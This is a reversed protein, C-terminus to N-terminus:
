CGGCEDRTCQDFETGVGGDLGSSLRNAPFWPYYVHNEQDRKLEGPSHLQHSTRLDPRETHLADTERLARYWGSRQPLEAQHLVPM